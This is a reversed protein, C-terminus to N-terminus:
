FNERLCPNEFKEHDSGDFSHVVGGHCCLERNRNVIELFDQDLTLLFEQFREQM